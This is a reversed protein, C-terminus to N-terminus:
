ILPLNASNSSSKTKVCILNLRYDGCWNSTKDAPPAIIYDSFAKADVFEDCSIFEIKVFRAYIVEPQSIKWM